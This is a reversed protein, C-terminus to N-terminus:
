KRVGKYNFLNRISLLIFIITEERCREHYALLRILISHYSIDFLNFCCFCQFRINQTINYRSFKRMPGSRHLNLGRPFFLHPALTSMHPCRAPKFINYSHPNLSTFGSHSYFDVWEHLHKWMHITNLHIYIFIHFHAYIRMRM